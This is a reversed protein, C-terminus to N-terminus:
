PIAHMLTRFAVKLGDNKNIIRLPRIVRLLRFVKFIKFSSVKLLGIFQILVLVFDFINANQKFYSKKNHCFGYAYIKILAELSFIIFTIIDMGKLVQAKVDDPNDLPNELALQLSSALIFFITLANFLKSKVIRVSLYSNEEASTNQSSRNSQSIRLIEAKTKVRYMAKRSCM